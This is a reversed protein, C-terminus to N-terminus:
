TEFRFSSLVSSEQSWLKHPLLHLPPHRRHPVEFFATYFAVLYFSKARLDTWGLFGCSTVLLHAISLMKSWARNLEVLEHMDNKKKKKLFMLCAYIRIIANWWRFFSKYYWPYHWLTDNSNQAHLKKKKKKQSLKLICNIGCNSSKKEFSKNM